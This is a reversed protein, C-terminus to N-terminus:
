GEAEKQEKKGAAHAETKTTAVLRDVLSNTAKHVQEIKISNRVSVFAGAVAVIFTGLSTIFLALDRM